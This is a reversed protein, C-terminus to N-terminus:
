GFRRRLERPMRSSDMGISRRVELPIRDQKIFAPEKQTEFKIPHTKLKQRGVVDLWNEFPFAIGAREAPTKDGLSEHTRFFNYHVLWGDLLMKATRIDKFGRVVRTRTKLTSHFREIINNNPKATIGKVAIHKTDAGFALEIGDLYSYQKDTIIVKPKKSARKSAKEVLTRADKTTRSLSIHSALLFRTRVDILDWFWVKNGGIKLVTEDAVWVDGVNPTHKEAEKTAIKTFRALWRYLTSRSPFTRFQQESHRKIEKLPMGGYWM